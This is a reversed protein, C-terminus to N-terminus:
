SGHAGLWKRNVHYLTNGDHMVRVCYIYIYVYINNNYHIRPFDNTKSVNSRHPIRRTTRIAVRQLCINFTKTKKRAVSAACSFPTPHTNGDYPIRSPIKFRKYDSAM